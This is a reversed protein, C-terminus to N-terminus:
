TASINYGIAFGVAGWFIGGSVWPYIYQSPITFKEGLPNELVLFEEGPYKKEFQKVGKALQM